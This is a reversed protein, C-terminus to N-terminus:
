WCITFSTTPSASSTSRRFFRSCTFIYVYAHKYIHHVLIHTSVCTYLYTYIYIYENMNGYLANRVLLNYIFNNTFGIVHFAPLFALTGRHHTTAKSAVAGLFIFLVPLTYRHTYTYICTYIYTHIYIYIFILSRGGTTRPRQLFSLV